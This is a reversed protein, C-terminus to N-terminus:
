EATMRKKTVLLVLAGVTMLGGLIYFITTGMGGTSPLTSGTKNVVVAVSAAMSSNTVTVTSGDTAAETVKNGDADLYTVDNTATANIAIVPVETSTTLKNYGAPAETETFSYTGTAVGKIIIEGNAPTTLSNVLGDGQSTGAYIYAGDTDATEKVYFPLQFTADALNQGSQDVKKLIIAYTSTTASKEYDTGGGYVTDSGTVKWSLSATNTNGAGAITADDDIIATYTITVTAGNGYKNTGDEAWVITIKGDGDFALGNIASRDNTTSADGDNDVVVSTVNVEKLFSPTPDSITYSAIQKAAEGSGEYNSTSFVITYTVADGINVDPDNVTKSVMTPVTTNKDVISANPNTSDVSIATSGQTTTVVYYGYPLGAFTLASGDSVATATVTARETWDKLAAIASESLKGETNKAADTASINGATDSTFYTSLNEPITGKYAISGNETGTVTADFLKYVSYTEGKSANSITIKGTGTSETGVTQASVSVALGMVMVLALVLSIIKRM